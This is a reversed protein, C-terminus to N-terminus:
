TQFLYKVEAPSKGSIKQVRRDPNAALHELVKYVTEVEDPSNIKDAVQSATLSQGKAASLIATAKSQVTLVATAAKKGAEVGPQHYANINILSAYYGVTREMLAILLGVSFPSVEGITITMSERDSEYLAERTGLFFGELFDGSRTGAEVQMSDGTRDRLVEIFSVFFDNRGDRLQQVYAHQDTSGKNGFVSIGQCVVKGARDTRKGLSEM